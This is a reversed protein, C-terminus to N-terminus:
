EHTIEVINLLESDSCHGGGQSYDLGTCDGVFEIWTKEIDKVQAKGGCAFTVWDGKKIKSIDM